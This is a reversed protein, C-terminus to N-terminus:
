ERLLQLLDSVPRVGLDVELLLQATARYAAQRMRADNVILRIQQYSPRFVGIRASYAGVNRYVDATSLQGRRALRRALRRLRPDIRPAAAVV